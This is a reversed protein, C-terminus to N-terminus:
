EKEREKAELQALLNFFRDPVPANVIDQTYAHLARGIVAQIAPDLSVEGDLEVRDDEPMKGDTHNAM